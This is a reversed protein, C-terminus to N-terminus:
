SRSGEVTDMALDSHMLRYIGIRDPSTLLAPNEEPLLSTSMVATIGADIADATEALIMVITTNDGGRFRLFRVLGAIERTAPWLRREDAFEDAAVWEPTRPGDFIVVQMFRAPCTGRGPRSDVLRLRDLGEDPWGAIMIGETGALPWGVMAGLSKGQAYTTALADDVWGTEVPHVGALHHATIYMRDLTGTRTSESM